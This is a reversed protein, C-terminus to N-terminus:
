YFASHGVTVKQASGSGNGSRFLEERTVGLRTRGIMLQWNAPKELDNQKPWM